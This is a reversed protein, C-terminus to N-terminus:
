LFTQECSVRDDIADLKAQQFFPGLEQTNIRLIPLAHEFSSNSEASAFAVPGSAMM